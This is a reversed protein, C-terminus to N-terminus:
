VTGPPDTVALPIALVAWAVGLALTASTVTPSTRISFSALWRQSTTLRVGSCSQPGTRSKQCSFPKRRVTSWGATPMM